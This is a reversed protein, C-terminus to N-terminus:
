TVRARLEEQVDEPLRSVAADLEDTDDLGRIARMAAAAVDLLEDSADEYRMGFLFLEIQDPRVNLSGAWSSVAECFHVYRFEAGRGPWEPDWGFVSEFTKLAHQVRSDMILPMPRADDGRAAVGYFHLYKTFFGSNYGRPSRPESFASYAAALDGAALPASSGELAGNLREDSLARPAYMYTRGSRGYGWMLTGIVLRRKAHLDDSTAAERAMDFLDARALSEHPFRDCVARVDRDESLGEKQLCLSSNFPVDQRMVDELSPIRAQGRRLPSPIQPVAM